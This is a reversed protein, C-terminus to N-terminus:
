GIVSDFFNTIIQAVQARTARYGPTVTNDSGHLIGSNVAWAM